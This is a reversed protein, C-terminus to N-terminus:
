FKSYIFILGKSGLQEKKSYSMKSTVYVRNLLKKTEGM